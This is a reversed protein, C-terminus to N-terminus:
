KKAEKEPPFALDQVQPPCNLYEPDIRLDIKPADPQATAPAAAPPSLRIESRRFLPYDSEPGPISGGGRIAVGKERGPGIAFELAAKARDQALRVNGEFPGAPKDPGEPSTYGVVETVSYKNSFDAQLGAKSEENLKQYDRGLKEYSKRSPDAPSQACKNDNVEATSYCFYVSRTQPGLPTPQAPPEPKPTDPEREKVCEYLYSQEWWEKVKDKCEFTKPKPGLPITLTFNASPTTGQPTQTAGGTVSLDVYETHLQLGGREATAGGEGVDVEVKVKLQFKGSQAILVDIYPTIKANKLFADVNQGAAVLKLLDPVLKAFDAGVDVQGKSEGRCWEVRVWAKVADAGVGVKPPAPEESTHRVPVATRTVVYHTHEDLSVRKKDVGLDEVNPFKGAPARRIVARSGALQPAPTARVAADAARDAAVEAPDDVAGVTLSAQVGPTQSRQQITHAVEHALLHFGGPSNPSFENRGFWINQGLTFARANIASAARAASDDAHVRVHSLDCRFSSELRSRVGGNMEMGPQQIAANVAGPVGRVPNANTARRQLLPDGSSKDETKNKKCDECEGNVTHQGCACKRRLVAQGTSAVSPALAITRAIQTGSAPM